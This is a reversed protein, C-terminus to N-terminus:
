AFNIGDDFRIRLMGEGHYGRDRFLCLAANTDLMEKAVERPTVGAFAALQECALPQGLPTLAPEAPSGSNSLMQFREGDGNRRQFVFVVPESPVLRAAQRLAAATIASAGEAGAADHTVSLVPESLAYTRLTLVANVGDHRFAFRQTTVPNGRPSGPSWSRPMPRHEGIAVSM